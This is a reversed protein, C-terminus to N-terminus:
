RPLQAPPSRLRSEVVRTALSQSPFRHRDDNRRCCPGREGVCMYMCVRVCEREKYNRSNNLQDYCNAAGTSVETRTDSSSAGRPAGGHWSSDGRGKTEKEAFSLDTKRRSASSFFLLIESPTPLGYFDNISLSVYPGM